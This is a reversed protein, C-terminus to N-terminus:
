GSSPASEPRPVVENEHSWPLVPQTLDFRVFLDSYYEESEAQSILSWLGRIERPGM